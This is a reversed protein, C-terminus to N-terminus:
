NGSIAVSRADLKVAIPQKQQLVVSVTGRWNSRELDRYAAIVGIYRTDPQLTRDFKKQEGPRLQFEDRGIMDASLTERERDWLSFFDAGNFASISKLEFVRVVIPSARGKLDPNVAATADVTAVIVTPPTPKPASACGVLLAVSTSVLLLRLYHRAVFRQAAM